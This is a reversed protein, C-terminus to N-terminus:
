APNYASTAYSATLLSRVDRDGWGITEPSKVVSFCPVTELRVRAFLCRSLSLSFEKDKASNKSGLALRAATDRPIEGSIFCDAISHERSLHWSLLLGCCERLGRAPSFKIARGNLGIIEETEIAAFILRCGRECQM